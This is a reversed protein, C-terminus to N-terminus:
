FWFGLRIANNVNLGVSNQKAKPLTPEAIDDIKVDVEKYTLANMGFGLEVGMYFHRVIYVDAGLVIFGNLKHYGREVYNSINYYYGNEEDYILVLDRWINTTETTVITYEYGSGTYDINLDEYLGESTKNEYGFSVGIYPSVRKSNIFHYEFGATFGLTTFKEDNSEFYVAGTSSEYPYEEFNMKHDYNFGLRLAMKDSLFLRSNFGSIDIPADPNFPTFNLEFTFNNKGPTFSLNTSDQAILGLSMVLFLGFITITKM